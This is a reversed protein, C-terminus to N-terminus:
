VGGKAQHQDERDIDGPNNKLNVIYIGAWATGHESPHPPFFM